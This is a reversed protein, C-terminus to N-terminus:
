PSALSAKYRASRSPFIDAVLTNKPFPGSVSGRQADYEVMLTGQLATKLVSKEVDTLAGAPSSFLVLSVFFIVIRM